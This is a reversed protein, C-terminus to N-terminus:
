PMGCRRLPAIFYGVKQGTGGIFSLNDAGLPQVADVVGRKGIGNNSEALSTPMVIRPCGGLLDGQELHDGGTVTFWPYEPQPDM